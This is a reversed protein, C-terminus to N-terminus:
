YNFGLNEQTHQFYKKWVWKGELHTETYMHTHICVCIHWGKGKHVNANINHRPLISGFWYELFSKRYKKTNKYNRGFIYSKKINIILSAM